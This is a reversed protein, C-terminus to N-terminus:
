IHVAVVDVLVLGLEFRLWGVGVMFGVEDVHLGKLEMRINGSSRKMEM